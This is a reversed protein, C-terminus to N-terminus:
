RTGLLVLLVLLILRGLLLWLGLGLAMIISGHTKLLITFGTAMPVDNSHFLTPAEQISSTKTTTTITTTTRELNRRSNSTSFPGEPHTM